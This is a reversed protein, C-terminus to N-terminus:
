QDLLVLPNIGVYLLFLVVLLLIILCYSSLVIGTITLLLMWTSLEYTFAYISALEISIIMLMAVIAISRRRRLYIGHSVVDDPNEIDLTSTVQKGSVTQMLMLEIEDANLKSDHSITSTQKRATITKMYTDIASILAEDNVDNVSLPQRTIPCILDDDGVCSNATSRM